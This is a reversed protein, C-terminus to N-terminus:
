ECPRIALVLGGLRWTAFVLGVFLLFLYGVVVVKL